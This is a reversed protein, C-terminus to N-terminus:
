PKRYRWERREGIRMQFRQWGASQLVRAVRNKDTQAWQGKPKLLCDGLIEGISVSEHQEAWTAIAEDWPDGEYRASQEQEAVANLEPTDLWWAEGARYRAVAEAWLQDRDRALPDTLIRQCAVPWFRRGGTDDRLYNSNNVTGAFVCQRPSEVLRKGYPPRFRDTARSMFAKIRAVDPRSMGTLEAIEVIWVGRIQMAADKTGFDAIEDAFWDGAIVKLATSKKLGQRGELILCCDAKIGPKYARAVASIMWRTGVAASYPTPEAGLYLSLWGSLRDTGDWALGGLYQRVPHIRNESAVVQVAQSVIERSVIIERHQLWDAALVDDNDTWEDFRRVSEWPAPKLAVIGLTFENFALVGEWQPAYRL